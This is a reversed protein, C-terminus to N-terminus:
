SKRPQIRERLTSAIEVRLRDAINQQMRAAEEAVIIDLNELMLPMLADIVAEALLSNEDAVEESPTGDFVETLVPIEVPEELIVFPTSSSTDPSNDPNSEVLGSTEVSDAPSAAPPPVPSDGPQGRKMLADLRNLVQEFQRNSDYDDAVSM